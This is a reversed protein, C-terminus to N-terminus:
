HHPSMQEVEQLHRRPLHAQHRLHPRCVQLRRYIVIHPPSNSRLITCSHGTINFYVIFCSAKWEGYKLEEYGNVSFGDELIGVKATMDSAMNFYYTPTPPPPSSLSIFKSTTIRTTSVSYLPHFSFFLFLSPRVAKKTNEKM